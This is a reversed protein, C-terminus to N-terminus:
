KGPPQRRYPKDGATGTRAARVVLHGHYIGHHCTFLFEGPTPNPITVTVPVGLPLQRDIGFAPILLRSACEAPDRRIFRLQAPIGAVLEIRDPSYVGRVEVELTQVRDHEDLRARVPRSRRRCAWWAAGWALLVGVVLAFLGLYLPWSLVSPDM